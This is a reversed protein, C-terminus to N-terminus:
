WLNLSLILFHTFACMSSKEGNQTEQWAELASSETETNQAETFIRQREDDDDNGKM